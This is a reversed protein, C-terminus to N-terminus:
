LGHRSPNQKCRHWQYTLFSKVPIHIHQLVKIKYLCINQFPGWSTKCNSKSFGTDKQNTYCLSTRHTFIYKNGYMVMSLAGEKKSRLRVALRNKPFFSIGTWMTTPQVPLLWSSCATWSLNQSNREPKDMKKQENTRELRGLQHCTIAFNNHKTSLEPCQGGGAAIPKQSGSWQKLCFPHELALMETGYLVARKM